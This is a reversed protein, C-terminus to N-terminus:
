TQSLMTKIDHFLTYQNHSIALHTMGHLMQELMTMGYRDPM